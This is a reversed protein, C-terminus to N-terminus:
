TRGNQTLWPKMAAEQKVIRTVESKPTGQVLLASTCKWMWIVEDKPIGSIASLAAAGDYTGDPNRFEDIGPM